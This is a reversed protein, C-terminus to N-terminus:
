IMRMVLQEVYRKMTYTIKSYIPEPKVITPIENLKIESFYKTCFKDRNSALFNCLREFRKIVISNACAKQRDRKVLEFSHLVIVFSYWNKKYALLLANELEKNSCASLQTHRLHNGWDYFFSVPFEYVGFFIKPQILVKKDEMEYSFNSYAPNYSSDLFINNKTLGYLTNVSCGYNGARFAGINSSGCDKLNKIGKSILFAQDDESFNRIDRGTRDPLISKEMKALWETHIHLQIEQGAEQILKVIKFLPNLGVASAFLSEVFFVAKLGYSNFLKLQFPLGFEGDRTVGYIDRSIDDSLESNRWNTMRPWVETDVTLFVNLM